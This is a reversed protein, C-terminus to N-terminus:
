AHLQKLEKLHHKEEGEIHKFTQKPKGKVKKAAKDYSGIAEVEDDKLKKLVKDKCNHM